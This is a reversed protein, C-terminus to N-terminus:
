LFAVVTAGRFFGSMIIELMTAQNNGKAASTNPMLTICDRCGTRFGTRAGRQLLAELWRPRAPRPYQRERSASLASSRQQRVIAASKGAL